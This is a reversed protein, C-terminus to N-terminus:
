VVMGGAADLMQETVFCASIELLSGQSPLQGAGSLIRCSSQLTSAVKEGKRGRVGSQKAGPWRGELSPKYEVMGGAVDLMQETVFCAAIELLSGQSPLQGAVSSIRRSSQLTIAQM